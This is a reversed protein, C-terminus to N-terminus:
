ELAHLEYHISLIDLNILWFIYHLGIDDFHWLSLKKYVFYLDHSIWLVEREMINRERVLLKEKTRKFMLQDHQWDSTKHINKQIEQLHHNTGMREFHIMGNPYRSVAGGWLSYQM